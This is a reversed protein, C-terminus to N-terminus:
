YNKVIAIPRTVNLANSFTSNKLFYNRAEYSFAALAVKLQRIAHVHILILSSMTINRKAEAVAAIHM